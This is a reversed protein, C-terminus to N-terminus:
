EGALIHIDLPEGGDDSPIRLSWSGNEEVALCRYVPYWPEREGEVFVQIPLCSETYGEAQGVVTLSHDNAVSVAELHVSPAHQFDLSVSTSPPSAQTSHSLLLLGIAIGIVSAIVVITKKRRM